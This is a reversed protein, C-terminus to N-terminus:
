RDIEMEIDKGNYVDALSVEVQKTIPKVRVQRKQAAGGPRGGGFMQSFIDGM